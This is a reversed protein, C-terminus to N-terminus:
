EARELGGWLDRDRHRETQNEVYAVVDPLAKDGFSLVGYDGQWAFRAEDDRTRRQNLLHSTAGKWRGIVESLASAPPVSAAVHVHDPMVGVAHVVVGKDPFAAKIVGIVEATDDPRVLPLRNKTGWVVHYHLRWFAVAKGGKAM